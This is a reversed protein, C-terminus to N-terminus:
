SDKQDYKRRREVLRAIEAGVCGAFANLVVRWLHGDSLVVALVVIGTGFVLREIVSM